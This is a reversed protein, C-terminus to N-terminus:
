PTIDIEPIQGTNLDFVANASIAAHTIGWNGHGFNFFVNM